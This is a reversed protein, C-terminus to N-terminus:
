RPFEVPELDDDPSLTRAILGGRVL